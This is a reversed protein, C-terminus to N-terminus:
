TRSCQSSSLEQSGPNPADSGALRALHTNMRAIWPGLTSGDRVIGRRSAARIEEAVEFMVRSIEAGDGGGGGGAPALRPPLPRSLLERSLPHDEAVCPLGHAAALALGYAGRAEGSSCEEGGAHWLAMDCGCLLHPLPREDIIVRWSRNHREVYRLARELSRCARPLVIAAPLGSVTLVGARFSFWRADLREAPEGTAVIALTEKPLGWQARLAARAKTDCEIIPLPALTTHTPGLSCLRWADFAPRNTLLLARAKRASALARWRAASLRPITDWGEPPPQSLTASIPPGSRPATALAALTLAAASWAHIVDPAPRLGQLKRRLTSAALELRGLPAAIVFDPKLGLRAASDLGGDEGGVILGVVSEIGADGGREGRDRILAALAALAPWGAGRPDILHLARITM